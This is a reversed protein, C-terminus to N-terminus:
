LEMGKKMVTRVSVRRIARSIQILGIESVEVAAGYQDYALRGICVTEFNMIKFEPSWLPVPLLTASSRRRRLAYIQVDKYFLYISQSINDFKHGDIKTSDLNIEKRVRM